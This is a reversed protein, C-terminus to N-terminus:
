SVYTESQVKCSDSFPNCDAASLFRAPAASRMLINIKDRNDREDDHAQVRRVVRAYPWEPSPRMNADVYIYCSRPRRRRQWPWAIARRTRRPRRM